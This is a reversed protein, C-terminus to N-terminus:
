KNNKLTKRTLLSVVIYLGICASIGEWGFFVLLLLCGALFLWTKTNEKGKLNNFKLSFMPVNSVMLGAFFLVLPSLYLPHLFPYADTDFSYAMGFAWFLANAPTPLGLFFHDQRNDVNFKALRLASAVPLFFALLAWQPSSGTVVTLDLLTQYLIMAPAVGFSVVDALSDLEKGIPSYAHLLRAAFGDLFDFVAALLIFLAAAQTQGNLALVISLCGSVLNLSTIGNPIHKTIM